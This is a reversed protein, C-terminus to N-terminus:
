GTGYSRNRSCGGAIARRRMTAIWGSPSETSVSLGVSDALRVTSVRLDGLHDPDLPRLRWRQSRHPRGLPITVTRVGMRHSNDDVTEVLHAGRPPLGLQLSLWGPCGIRDMHPFPAKWPASERRGIQSGVGKMGLTTARCDPHSFADILILIANGRRFHEGTCVRQRMQNTGWRDDDAPVSMPRIMRPRFSLTHKTRGSWGGVKLTRPASHSRIRDLRPVCWLSTRTGAHRLRAWVKRHGEGHFASAALVARIPSEAAPRNGTATPLMTGEDTKKGSTRPQVCLDTTPRSVLFLGAALTRTSSGISCSQMTM